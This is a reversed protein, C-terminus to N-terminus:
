LMNIPKVQKGNLLKERSKYDPMYKSILNYFEKSHNKHVIHALEHVVVYDVAEDPYLMLVYSFCLSNNASCSGFRKKASTIKIGTPKVTMLESYFNVKEPIVKKALEKVETIEAETLTLKNESRELQKSVANKIWLANNKVFDAIKSKPYRRPVRVIVEGKENVQIALTKRSSEIIKYELM